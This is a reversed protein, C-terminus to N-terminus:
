PVMGAADDIDRFISNLDVQGYTDPFTKREPDQRQVMQRQQIVRLQQEQQPTVAMKRQQELRQMRLQSAQYKRWGYVGGYAAYRKDLSGRPRGKRGSKIGQVTRMSEPIAASGYMQRAFGGPKLMQRKRELWEGIKGARTKKYKEVGKVYKVEKKLTKGEEVRKQVRRAGELKKVAELKRLGSASIKGYYKQFPKKRREVEAKKRLQQLRFFLEKKKNLANVRQSDPIENPM